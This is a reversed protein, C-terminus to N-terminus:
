DQRGKGGRGPEVFVGDDEAAKGLAMRHGAPTKAVGDPRLRNDRLHGLELLVRKDARRRGELERGQFRQFQIAPEHNGGVHRDSGPIFEDLDIFAVWEWNKAHFDIFHKYAAQQVPRGAFPMVTVYDKLPSSLLISGGDDTSENDYLFFYDVGVARHYAVWEILNPGEDKFIACVAITTM